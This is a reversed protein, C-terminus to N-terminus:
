RIIRYWYKYAEKFGLKKYLNLAPINDLVVQLYARKAGNAKGWDLINLILQMGYGKNRYKPNTVIDFLGIYDDELVGMGCALVEKKDNFLLVYCVEPVITELMKKLTSQDSEKMNNLECFSNFWKDELCDYIIINSSLPLNVVFEDFSLVQVSTLGELSYGVQDLISDLNKPFVRPTLKFMVPLNRAQYIQEVEKIKESIIGHTAYLPSISNARKSYGNSIRLLWGDVLQTQLSPFANISLEEIKQIQGDENM